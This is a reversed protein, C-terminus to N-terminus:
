SEQLLRIMEVVLPATTSLALEMCDVSSRPADDDASDSISRIVLYPLAYESCVQAIAAGEMETALAEPYLELIRAIAQQSSVFQDGSVILGEHVGALGPVGPRAIRATELLRQDAPYIRPHDPLQGPAYGFASLDFDHYATGTSIVTDAIRLGRGVGGAIGTNIIAGVGFHEALISATVGASVKGIGSRCLVVEHVGCRGPYFERGGRLQPAGAELSQRLSDVEEQMAGIIGLKMAIGGEAAAARLWNLWTM